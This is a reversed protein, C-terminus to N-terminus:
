SIQKARNTNVWKCGKSEHRIIVCHFYQQSINVSQVTLWQPKCMHIYLYVRHTFLYKYDQECISSFITESLPIFKKLLILFCRLATKRNSCNQYWTEVITNLYLPLLYLFNAIYTWHLCKFVITHINGTITKRRNM